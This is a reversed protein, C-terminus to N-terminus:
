EEEIWAKVLVEMIELKTGDFTRKKFEEYDVGCFELFRKCSEEPTM